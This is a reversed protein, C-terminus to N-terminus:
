NSVELEQIREKHQQMAKEHQAIIIKMTKDDYQAASSPFIHLILITKYCTFIHCRTVYVKHRDCDSTVPLVILVRQMSYEFVVSSWFVKWSENVESM